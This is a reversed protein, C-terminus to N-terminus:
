AGEMLQVRYSTAELVHAVEVKSAGDLDAITRAVKLIRSWARASLGHRELADQLAHAAQRQLDVMEAVGDPPLEANCRVPRDGYRATQRRRAATVRERVVASSEGQGGSVLQEPPVPQVWLHLDLRDLLPGSMRGRYREVATPLCTCAKFPHDLYGCPCPNAAGVVSVSAPFTVTGKSRTLRVVRDELPGRLMELVSRGFEPLEDLFLVGHHALSVEGPLLAANGIMGAATVSHHPARFPRATILGSGTGVLGAASHVRTVDIAEAHTLEPLITPVRAALMSKGCGPPGIM